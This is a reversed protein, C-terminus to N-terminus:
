DKPHELKYKILISNLSEYYESLENFSIESHEYDVEARPTEDLFKSLEPFKAKIILTIELIKNTLEISSDADFKHKDTKNSKPSVNKIQKSFEQKSNRNSLNENKNDLNFENM